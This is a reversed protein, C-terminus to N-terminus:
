ETSFAMLRNQHWPSVKMESHAVFFLVIGNEDASSGTRTKRYRYKSDYQSIAEFLDDSM